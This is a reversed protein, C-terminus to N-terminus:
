SKPTKFTWFKAASFNWVVVIPVACLSAIVAIKKDPNADHVLQGTLLMLFVKTFMLNLALGVLNTLVFKAYQTNANHNQAEKFTWRRNWIFGNSVGFCFSISAWIWWPIFPAKQEAFGMMVYFLGKDVVTSSAGVICFKVLQRFGARQMLPVRPSPSVLLPTPESPMFSVNETAM